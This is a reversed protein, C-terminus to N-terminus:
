RSPALIIPMVDQIVDPAMAMDLHVQITWAVSFYHGTFTWPGDPAQLSFNFNIPLGAQLDGQYIDVRVPTAEDREGRGETHWRLCVYLHNCRLNSEYIVEGSGTITDGPAFRRVDGDLEGSTLSLRVQTAM